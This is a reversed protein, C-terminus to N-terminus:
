FPLSVRKFEVRSSEPKNSFNILFGEKIKTREMYHMLQLIHEQKLSSCAKLELVWLDDIILDARITGVIHKKYHVPINVEMKHPINRNELEVVFAKQYVSELHCPGLADYIENAIREVFKDM